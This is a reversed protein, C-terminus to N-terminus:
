AIQRVTVVANITFLHMKTRPTDRGLAIVGLRGTIAYVTYSQNGTGADDGVEVVTNSAMNDLAITIAQVKEFGSYHEPDRVRVQFGPKEQVEGFMFRGQRTGLTNYITIVSDPSDPEQAVYIPWADSDAPATGQSLDILLNRIIDAPSHILAGSM